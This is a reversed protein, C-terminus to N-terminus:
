YDGRISREKKYLPLLRPFIQRFINNFLLKYLRYEKRDPVFHDKVQVMANVASEMDDYIGKAIFAVMSSGLGSAEYTQIRNVPLGFMNATIQCIEDSQSGGGAVFLEKVKFHGRKELTKLGDILAYGVGEIIARYLHIRTHMDSVGIIAGRATPMTIGPTFYPQFTLGGCGPPIEKLRSNLLEEASIGLKLAEVEEKAAFEKKFWSILWFGRYIQVEPNYCGKKVAPYAPIFSLPEMYHDTTVAVSATTGFSLAAKDPSLCGLGVIECGKDSGTAILETGEPIGTEESAKRSILGVIEGPELIDYLKSPEIDFICRRIDKEKMWCRNKSDFPIHGILNACSDAYNGTFCFNLYASLLLFKHTKRWLEPENKKIWNCASMKRQLKVTERMGSATFALKQPAPVKKLGKAERMDLWLIVNNLPKGNVDVCVCSDRICCMTVATLRDWDSGAKEKLELSVHCLADWYFEAKQEAWGPYTSFYPTKYKLQTKYLIQGRKDVLMARASQTGMDFSLVLPDRTEM